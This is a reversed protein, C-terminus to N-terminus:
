DTWVVRAPPIGSLSERRRLAQMFLDAVERRLRPGHRGFSVTVIDLGPNATRWEAVWGALCKDVSLWLFSLDEAPGAAIRGANVSIVYGSASLNSTRTTVLGRAHAEYLSPADSASALAKLLLLEEPKGSPEINEADEPRLSEGRCRRASSAVLFALYPDTLATAHHRLRCFSFVAGVVDHAHARDVGFREACLVFSEVPLGPSDIDDVVHM